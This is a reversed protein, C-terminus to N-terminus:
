EPKKLKELDKPKFYYAAALVSSSLFTNVTFNLLLTTDASDILITFIRTFNTFASISWTLLSISESEKTKLIEFLQVVKASAGIPTCMPVLFILLERPLIGSLFGAAFCFYICAGVSSAMNFSGNYYLVFLILVMQQALIIPYEMYSLLAYGHRYNYSFMITYSCLEMILGTLNIGRANKVRVINIVQPIKQIFCTAITIVSLFDSIAELVMLRAEYSM